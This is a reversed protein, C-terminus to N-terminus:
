LLLSLSLSLSPSLSLSLSLSLSASDDVPVYVAYLAPREIFSSLLPLSLSLPDFPFWGLINAVGNDLALHPPLPSTRRAVLAASISHSLSLSLSTFHPARLSLASLVNLLETAIFSPLFRLPQQPLSLFPSLLRTLADLSLSALLPLHFCLLYALAATTVYLPAAHRKGDPSLPLRSSVAPSLCLSALRDLLSLTLSPPLYAARAAFSGLYAAATARTIAGNGDDALIAFWHDLLSLSLSPSLSAPHLLLFQTATPKDARLATRSLVSLLSSFSTAM